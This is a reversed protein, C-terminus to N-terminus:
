RNHRSDLHSRVFGQEDSNFAEGSRSTLQTNSAPGPGMAVAAAQVGPSMLPPTVTGTSAMNRLNKRGYTSYLRSHVGSDLVLNRPQGLRFFAKVDANLSNSGIGYNLAVAFSESKRCAMRAYTVPKPLCSRLLVARKCRQPPSKQRSSKGCGCIWQFTSTRGRATTHKDSSARM